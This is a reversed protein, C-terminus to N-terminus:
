PAVRRMLNAKVAEVMSRPRFKRTGIRVPPQWGDPARAQGTDWRWVSQGTVGGLERRVQKDPVLSDFQDTPIETPPNGQTTLNSKFSM